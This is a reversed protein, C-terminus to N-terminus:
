QLIWRINVVACSVTYGKPWLRRDFDFSPTVRMDWAGQPVTPYRMSAPAPMFLSIMDKQFLDVIDSNANVTGNDAVYFVQYSSKVDRNINSAIIKVPSKNASVVIVVPLGDREEWKPVLKQVVAYGKNTLITAILPKFQDAM